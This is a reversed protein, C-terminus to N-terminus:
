GVSEQVPSDSVPARRSPWGGEPTPLEFRAPVGRRRREYCAHCILLSGGPERRHAPSGCPCVGRAQPAHAERYAKKRCPNCLGSAEVERGCGTSCQTGPGTVRPQAREWCKRCVGDAYVTQCGCPCAADLAAQLAAFRGWAEYRDENRLHEPADKYLWEALARAKAGSYTLQAKTNGTEPVTRLALAGTDIGTHKLIEAKLREVFPVCISTYIMSRAPNGSARRKARDQLYVCGDTDWLGRIFHPLCVAPLDEPWPLNHSKPGCIGHVQEIWDVLAKSGVTWRWANAHSVARPISASPSLLAGWRTTTSLSGTISVIAGSTYRGVHGDGLLAGFWWAREPSWSQLLSWNITAM